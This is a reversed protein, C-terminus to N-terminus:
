DRSVGESFAVQTPHERLENLMIMVLPIMLAQAVFEDLRRTWPWTEAVNTM